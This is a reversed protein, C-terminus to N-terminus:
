WWNINTIFYAYRVFFFTKISCIIYPLSLTAWLLVYVQHTSNWIAWNETSLILKNLMVLNNCISGADELSFHLEVIALKM